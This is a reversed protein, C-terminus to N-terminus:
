VGKQKVMIDVSGIVAGILAVLDFRELEVQNQGFEIQNLTLLKKVMKNM